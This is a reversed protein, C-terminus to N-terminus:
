RWSDRTEHQFAAGRWYRWKFSNADVDPLAKLWQEAVRWNRLSVATDIIAGITQSSRNSSFGQPLKGERATLLDFHGELTNIQAENFSYRSKYSGWLKKAKELDSRAYRQLGHLLAERGWRDDTFYKSTRSRSPTVHVEYFQKARSLRPEKFFRLLYRALQRSNSQLALRLREWALDESVHGAQIWAGFVTDCAKPQSKGVVWLEPVQQMAQQTRGTHLLAHLYYCQIQTDTSGEYANALRTWRGRQGQVLLWRQFLPEDLPTEALRKRYESIQATNLSWLQRRADHYILYPQLPYNELEKVLRKFESVQGKRVANLAKQYKIRDAYLAHDFTSTAALSTTFSFVICAAVCAARIHSIPLPFGIQAQKM